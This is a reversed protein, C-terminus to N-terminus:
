IKNSFPYYFVWLNEIEKRDSLIRSPCTFIDIEKDKLKTFFVVLQKNTRFFFMGDPVVLGGDYSNLEASKICNNKRKKM